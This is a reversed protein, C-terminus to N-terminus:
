TLTRRRSFGLGALGIGLLALAAVFRRASACYGKAHNREGVARILDDRIRSARGQQFLALLGPAVV